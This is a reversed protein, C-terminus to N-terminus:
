IVRSKEVVELLVGINCILMFHIASSKWSDYRKKSFSCLNLAVHIGHNVTHKYIYIYVSM